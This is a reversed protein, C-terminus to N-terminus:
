YSSHLQALSCLKVDLEAFRLHTKGPFRICLVPVYTSQWCLSYIYLRVVYM